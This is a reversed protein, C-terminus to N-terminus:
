TKDRVFLTNKVEPKISQWAESAIVLHHKTELLFHIKFELGILNGRPARFFWVLNQAWCFIYKCWFM